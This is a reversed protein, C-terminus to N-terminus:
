LRAMSSPLWFRPAEASVMIFFESIMASPIAPPLIITDSRAAKAMTKKLNLSLFNQKQAMKTVSMSGTSTRIM